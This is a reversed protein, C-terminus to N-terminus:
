NNKHQVYSSFSSNRSFKCTKDQKIWHFLIRKIEQFLIRKIEQTNQVKKWFAPLWSQKLNKKKKQLYCDLSKVHCALEHQHLCWWVLQNCLTLPESSQGFLFHSPCDTMTGGGGKPYLLLELSFNIHGTNDMMFFFLIVDGMNHM